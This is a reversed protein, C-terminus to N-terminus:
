KAVRIHLPGSPGLIEPFEHFRKLVSNFIESDPQDDGEARRVGVNVQGKGRRGEGCRFHPGSAESPLQEVPGLGRLSAPWHVM